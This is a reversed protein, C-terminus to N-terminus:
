ARVRRRQLNLVALLAFGAVLILLSDPEPEVRIDAENAQASVRRWPGHVPNPPEAGCRTKRRPDAPNQSDTKAGCSLPQSGTVGEELFIAGNSSAAPVPRWMEAYIFM